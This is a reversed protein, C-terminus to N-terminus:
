DDVAQSLDIIEMRINSENKGDGNVVIEIGRLTSKLQQYLANLTKVEESSSKTEKENEIIAEAHKCCTYNNNTIMGRLVDM